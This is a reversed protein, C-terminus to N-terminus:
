WNGYGDPEGIEHPSWSISMSKVGCSTVIYGHASLYEVLSLRNNFTQMKHNDRYNISVTHYGNNAAHTIAENIKLDEVLREQTESLDSLALADSASILAM